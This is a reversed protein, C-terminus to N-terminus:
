RIIRCKTLAALVIVLKAKLDVTNKDFSEQFDLVLHTTNSNFHKQHTTVVGDASDNLFQMAEKM